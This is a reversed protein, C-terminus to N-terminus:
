LAAGVAGPEGMGAAALDLEDVTTVRLSLYLAPLIFLNLVTATVLGGLLTIALPRVIELGAIDGLFLTGLLALGTAFATALTPTLREGAGRLVMDAGFPEGARVFQRYRNILLIQGRTAIGFGAM